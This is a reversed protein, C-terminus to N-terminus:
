INKQIKTKGYKIHFKKHCQECLTIGNDMDTRLDKNEAFGEIHHANFRIGKKFCKQCTYDDREYVSERWKYYEPYKREVLREEDTKNIHRLFGRDRTTPSSDSKDSRLSSM